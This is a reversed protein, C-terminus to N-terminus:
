PDATCRASLYSRAVQALSILAVELGRIISFQWQPLVTGLAVNQGHFKQRVPGSMPVASEPEIEVTKVTKLQIQAPM